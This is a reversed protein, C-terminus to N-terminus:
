IFRALRRIEKYFSSRHTKRYRQIAYSNTDKIGLTSLKLTLNDSIAPPLHKDSRSGYESSFQRVLAKIGFCRIEKGVWGYFGNSQETKPSRLQNESPHDVFGKIDPTKTTEDKLEDGSLKEKTYWSRVKLIIVM